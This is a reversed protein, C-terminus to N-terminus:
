TRARLAGIEAVSAVAGKRGPALARVLLFLGLGAVAGALATLTLPSM